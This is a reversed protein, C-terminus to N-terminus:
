MGNVTEVFFMGQEAIHKSVYMKHDGDVAFLGMSNPLTELQKGINLLFDQETDSSPTFAEVFLGDPKFVADVVPEPAPASPHIEEWEALTL